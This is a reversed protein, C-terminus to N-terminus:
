PPDFGGPLRIENLQSKASPQDNMKSKQGIQVRETREVKSIEGPTVTHVYTHIYVRHAGEESSRTLISQLLYKLRPVLYLYRFVYRNSPDRRQMRFTIKKECM